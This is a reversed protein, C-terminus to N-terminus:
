EYRLAASPHLLAARRAPVGAALLAVIALLGGAMLFTAPDNPELGYLLSGTGRAAIAALFVGMTVGAALLLGTQRLILNLVSGPSAGLAMRIGIENRRAATIYSIVGYIGIAALVAALMGFFGCLVAMVREMVLGDLIQRQFDGLEAVVDPHKEAMSRKVAAMVVRSPMSSHIVLSSWPGQAPFQTAPAFTIPPTEGRLDSYRTDPIIGIIQYTTAPYGPEAGTLLTQGVPDESAFFRRAFTQNVLAVRPSTATDEKTFGRGRVIPIGMTEFYDPSVWTFKSNGELSGVRVGHEWSGGDLPIRTTTAASEVGPVSQVQELLERQFGPWREPPLNSQWYGLFATTIGRERMGPDMTVLNRFSRVFLLAGVLLMLSMSIQVVVMARQLSFVSRDATTGWSGSKLAHSPDLGSARLAPALAFILCTLAAVAAVFFLIRWDLSLDLRLVNNETSFLMVLSRSLVGALLIGLVAGTLSLLAGEALLQLVLRWRPAGLALRVAMERERTNGRVLMLNALNACAIALVLGTIGLLLWLSTYDNERLPNVGRSAPYAALRFDKYMEITKNDRGPPVTAEFIGPSLANLGASARELSWGPKLRGMVSVDFIDRRLGEPPVCLPLAIDFSDGVVMGFFEPPTVGIIQVPFNDVILQIGQAPDRGALERRWYSYSAVGYSMPCPGEDAPLLLRGRFPRVGLVRFFDGSAWLANFHRMESGRGLFRSAVSWAFIDSFAQQHDRIALWLPRTLDGYDQNLGMGHNGGVIRVAALQGPDRVPLSRLRVADLLEFIAANAGIGLALTVVAVSTFGPSKRLLRAAFLLDQWLTELFSEWGSTRVAEKTLGLSGRELRVARLAEERSSGSKMKEEAAMELFGRLEEDLESEVRERRLLSRLGGAINQLLSM